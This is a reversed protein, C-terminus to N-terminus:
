VDSIDEYIQKKLEKIKHKLCNEIYDTFLDYIESPLIDTVDNDLCMKYMSVFRNFYYERICFDEIKVKIKKPLFDYFIENLTNTINIDLKIIKDEIEITILAHNLSNFGTISFNIIFDNNPDSEDEYLYVNISNPFKIFEGDEKNTLENIIYAKKLLKSVEIYEGETFNEESFELLKNLLDNNM